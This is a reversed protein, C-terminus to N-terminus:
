AVGGERQKKWRYLQIARFYDNGYKRLVAVGGATALAVSGQPGRKKAAAYGGKIRGANTTPRKVSASM